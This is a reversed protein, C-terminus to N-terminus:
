GNDSARRVSSANQGSGATASGHSRSDEDAKDAGSAEPAESRANVRRSVRGPDIDYSLALREQDM